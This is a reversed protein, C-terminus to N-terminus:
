SSSSRQRRRYARQGSWDEEDPFWVRWSWHDDPGRDGARLPRTFAPCSELKPDGKPTALYLASDEFSSFKSFVGSFGRDIEQEDIDPFRWWFIRCVGPNGRERRFIAQGLPRGLAEHLSYFQTAGDSGRAWGRRWLGERIAAVPDLEGQGVAEDAETLLRNMWPPQWWGLHRYEHIRRAWSILDGPGNRLRLPPVSGFHASSYLPKVEVSASSQASIPATLHLGPMFTSKGGWWILSGQDKIRPAKAHARYSLLPLYQRAVLVTLAIPSIHNPTIASDHPLMEMALGILEKSREDVAEFETLGGCRSGRELAAVMDVKAETELDQTHWSAGLVYKGQGLSFARARLLGRRIPNGNPVGDAYAEVDWLARHGQGTLSAPAMFLKVYNARISEEIAGPSGLWDQLARPNGISPDDLLDMLVADLWANISHIVFIATEALIGSISEEARELYREVVGKDNSHLKIWKKLAVFRDQIKQLDVEFLLRNGEDRLAREMVLDRGKFLADHILSEAFSHDTGKFPKGVQPPNWYRNEPLDKSRHATGSVWASHDHQGRLLKAKERPLPQVLTGAFAELAFAAGIATLYRRRVESLQTLYAKVESLEASSRPPRNREVCELQPGLDIGGPTLRAFLGETRLMGVLLERSSGASGRGRWRDIVQPNWIRAFLAQQQREIIGRELKAAITSKRQPSTAM